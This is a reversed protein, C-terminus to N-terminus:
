IATNNVLAKREDERGQIYGERYDVYSFKKRRGKEYYEWRYGGTVSGTRASAQILRPKIGTAVSAEISSRYTNLLKGSKSMQKIRKGKFYITEKRGKDINERGTILQMNNFTYPLRPDLRDVSPTMGNKFGSDKWEKFRERGKNEILWAKFEYITFGIQEKWRNKSRERIADFMKAILGPYTKRWKNRWATNKSVYDPNKRRWEKKYKNIEDRNMNRRKAM